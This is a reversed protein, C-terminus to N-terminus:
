AQLENSVTTNICELRWLCIGWGWGAQVNKLQMMGVVIKARSRGEEPEEYVWLGRVKWEKEKLNPGM